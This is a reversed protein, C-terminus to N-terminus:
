YWYDHALQWRNYKIFSALTSVILGLESASFGYQLLLYMFGVIGGSFGVEM